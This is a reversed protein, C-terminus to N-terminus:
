SATNTSAPLPLHISVTTGAGPKSQLTCTGTLLRVREAIGLLGFGRREGQNSMAPDFGKGDDQITLDVTAPATQLRVLVHRADAHKLVNNFSEQVIRYISMEAEPPFRGDIPDLEATIALGSSDAIKHLMSRLAKTLGLRDLLYPRLNYAIERVEGIAHTSQQTIQELQAQAAAPDHTHRTGAVASNKIMALTQGLSDHLEAAIRSRESEHAAILRRSFEQQLAYRRQLQRGRWRFGGGVLAVALGM